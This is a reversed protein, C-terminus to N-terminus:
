KLKPKFESHLENNESTQIEQKLERSSERISYNWIDQLQRQSLERASEPFYIKKNDKIIDFQSIETPETKQNEASIESIRNRIKIIEIDLEVGESYVDNVAIEASILNGTIKKRNIEFDELMDKVDSIKKKIRGPLNGIQAYLELIRQTIAQEDLSLVRQKIEEASLGRSKQRNAYAESLRQNNIFLEDVEKSTTETDTVIKGIMDTPVLRFDLIDPLISGFERRLTEYLNNLEKTNDQAHNRNKILYNMMEAGSFHVVEVRDPRYRETGTRDKYIECVSSLLLYLNSKMVIGEPNSGNRTIAEITQKLYNHAMEAVQEPNISIETGNDDIYLQENKGQKKALNFINGEKDVFNGFLGPYERALVEMAKAFFPEQEFFLQSTLQINSPFLRKLSEYHLQAPRQFNGELISKIKEKAESNIVSHTLPLTTQDTLPLEQGGIKLFAPKYIKADGRIHEHLIVPFGEQALFLTPANFNGVHASRLVSGGNQQHDHIAKLSYNEGNTIKFM